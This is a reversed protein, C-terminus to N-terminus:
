FAQLFSQLINNWLAGSHISEGLGLKLLVVHKCFHSILPAELVPSVQKALDRKNKVDRRKALSM